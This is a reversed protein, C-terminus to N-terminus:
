KNKKAKESAEVIEKPLKIIKIERPKYPQDQLVGIRPLETVSTSMKFAGSPIPRVHREHASGLEIYFIEKKDDATRVERREKKMKDVMLIEHTIM